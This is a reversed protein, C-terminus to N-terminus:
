KADSVDALQRDLIRAVLRPLCDTLYDLFATVHCYVPVSVLVTSRLMVGEELRTDWWAGTWFCVSVYTFISVSFQRIM